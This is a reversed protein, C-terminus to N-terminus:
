VVSNDTEYLLSNISNETKLFSHGGGVSKIEYGLLDPGVTQLIQNPNKM